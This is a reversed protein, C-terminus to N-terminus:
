KRCSFDPIEMLEDHSESGRVTKAYRHVFIFLLTLAILAYVVYWFNNNQPEPSFGGSIFGSIDTSENSQSNM